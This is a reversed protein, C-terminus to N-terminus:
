ITIIAQMREGTIIFVKTDNCRKFVVVLGCVTLTFAVQEQEM